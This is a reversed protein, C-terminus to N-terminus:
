YIAVLMCVRRACIAATSFVVSLSSACFLVPTNDVTRILIPKFLFCLGNCAAILLNPVIISNVATTSATLIKQKAEKTLMTMWGVYINSGDCTALEPCCKRSMSESRSSLSGMTMDQLM